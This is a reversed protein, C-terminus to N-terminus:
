PRCKSSIYQANIRAKEEKRENHTENKRRCLRCWMIHRLRRVYAKGTVFLTWISNSKKEHCKWGLIMFWFKHLVVALMLNTYSDIPAYFSVESFDKLTLHCWECDIIKICIKKKAKKERERLGNGRWVM